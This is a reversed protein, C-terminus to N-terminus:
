YINVFIKICDGGGGEIRERDRFRRGGAEALPPIGTKSRACHGDPYQSEHERHDRGGPRRDVRLPKDNPPITTALDNSKINKNRYKNM